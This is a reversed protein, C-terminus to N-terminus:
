HRAAEDNQFSADAPRLCINLVFDDLEYALLDAGDGRELERDSHRTERFRAGSLNQPARHSLNGDAFWPGHRRRDVIRRSEILDLRCQLTLADTRSGNLASFSARSISLELRMDM